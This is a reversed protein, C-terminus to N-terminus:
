RSENAKLPDFWITTPMYKSELQFSYAEGQLDEFVAFYNGHSKSYQIESFELKLHSYNEKVYNMATIKGIYSPITGQIWLLGVLILLVVCLKYRFRKYVKKLFELLYYLKESFKFLREGIRTALRSIIVGLFVTIVVSLIINGNSKLGEDFVKTM